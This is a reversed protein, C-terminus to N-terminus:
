DEEHFDSSFDEDFDGSADDVWPKRKDSEPALTPGGPPKSIM